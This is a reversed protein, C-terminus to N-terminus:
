LTQSKSSCRVWVWKESTWHGIIHFDLHELPTTLYFLSEKEKRGLVYIKLPSLISGGIASLSVEPVAAPETNEGDEELVSGRCVFLLNVLLEIRKNTFVLYIYQVCQM